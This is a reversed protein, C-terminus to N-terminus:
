EDEEGFEADWEEKTAGTMLFERDEDLLDPM